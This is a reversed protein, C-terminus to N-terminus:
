PEQRALYARFLGPWSDQPPVLPPLDDLAAWFLTFRHGDTSVTWRDPTDGAHELHFFHRRFGDAFVRDPVWATIEFTTYQAHHLHDAESYVIQTYGDAHRLTTVWLGRPLTVWDWSSPDPRAYASTAQAIIRMGDPPAGTRTAIQGRLTFDVLGTEEHAERLAAALPTEGPEMTGAPIENGAYPHELLLLDCADGRTRTIFTTVKGILTPM